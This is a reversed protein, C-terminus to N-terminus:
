DQVCRVSQLLSKGSGGWNAYENNYYMSRVYANDSNRESTSWWYGRLGVNNFGGSSGIGGPLASFGYTDEGNGSKGSFPNWGSTAKLYKGAYESDTNSTYNGHGKDLHVFAMLTNWDDNSPIHWGDPCIGQHPSSIACDADSTSLVYGCKSPLKMVTLWDYLRGYTNCTTTNASSLSNGNGCVSGSVAYNLNEAMWTQDGIVITNYTQGFYTVSGDYQTLTTGNKCYHTSPNYEDGSCKNYVSNEICFQTSSNYYSSETGCKTEIVNGTGCRQNTPDYSSGGCKNYVSNGDCFQTEPNHYSDGTECKTVVANGLFDCRQNSLNYRASVCCGQEVPNYNQGGCKNYISNEICFQTAANYWSTGCKTELVNNQCRQNLPNYATGNCKAPNAVGGSCIHITPNYEMGDCKDYIEGDYCFKNDPNFISTCERLSNESSSSM